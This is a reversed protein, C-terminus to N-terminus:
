KYTQMDFKEKIKKEIKKEKNIKAKVLFEKWLKKITHLMEQVKNKELEYIEVKHDEVM